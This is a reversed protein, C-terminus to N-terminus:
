KSGRRRQEKWSAVVTADYVKSYNDPRLIRRWLPFESYPYNDTIIRVGELNEALESENLLLLDEMTDATSVLDDWEKIDTLFKQDQFAQRFRASNVRLAHHTGILYFGPYGPGQWLSAHPFVSQFTRMIMRVEKKYYSPPVWLCLVGGPALRKKCLSIFERSYLNVTGASYIPPSPDITIIDYSKDRMLLFNRGDGVYPHVRSNRLIETGNSHYFKFADYTDPVLEVVDITLSDYLSASRLTTGMGFCVILVDKPTESLLIPLHAMLKTATTYGAVGTGNIWLLKRLPNTKSGLATITAAVNEKYLYIVGTNNWMRRVRNKNVQYIPNNMIAAIFITFALGVVIALSLPRRARELDSLFLIIGLLLNIGALTLVTGASGLLPIFLFGCVFSGFICGM